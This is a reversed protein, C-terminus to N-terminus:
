HEIRLSLWALRDQYRLAAIRGEQARNAMQVTVALEAREAGIRFAKALRWDVRESAGIPNAGNRRWRMPGDRYYMVSAQLAGPLQQMAMATQAHTPASQATQMAIKDTNPGFTDAVLAADTLRADICILANNYVLRTTPLPQWRLQYEYGRTAVRELNIAGDARGYIYPTNLNVYTRNFVSDAYDPSSAPLALPVIQIRNPIREYFARLDVSAHAAKFEGLYGLEASDVREPQVGQGLYTIDFPASTGPNKMVVRGMAEYLSPSRHARSATLRLTQEDTLHYSASVRPDFMTGSVSDHELSAGLNLLWAGTPRYELNGFTRYSARHLWDSTSFQGPSFLAISKAGAGWLLRIRETPALLHEFELEHVASKGGPETLNVIPVKPASGPNTTLNFSADQQYPGAAWDETYAYRLKIEEDAAVVRRWLVGLSTSDQHLDRLPDTAPRDARGYQSVDAAHSLTWQLEDRNTLRQDARLDFVQATHSDHPNTWSTYYAHQFGDDASRRYTLRLNADGAQGGWRLTEDRIGDNGFNSALLWGKTLSTEETIINIVGLFANSGYAVTNPGRIVEIRQIDEIAVPLLNWNVGSKFLPSYQSRGDILVQVRPTYEENTMGGSLGHYTVVAPDQNASTVQFGPVLRLLDAVTRMGSARITERDLVTVAAPAESIRQPLRSVSAVLPLEAFFPDEEAGVQDAAAALALASLLMGCQWAARRNRNDKKM